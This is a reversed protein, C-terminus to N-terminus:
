KQKSDLKAGGFFFKCVASMPWVFYVKPARDTAAETNDLDRVADFQKVNVQRDYLQQGHLHLQTEV